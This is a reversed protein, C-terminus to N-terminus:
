SRRIPCSNPPARRSPRSSSIQSRTVFPSIRVRLTQPRMAALTGRLLRLRHAPPRLVRTLLSAFASIPDNPRIRTRAPPTPTLTTRSLTRDPSTPRPEAPCVLGFITGRPVIKQQPSPRGTPKSGRARNPQRGSNGEAAPEVGRDDFVLGFITGRPVIRPHGSARQCSNRRRRPGQRGVSGFDM